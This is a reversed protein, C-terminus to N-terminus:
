VEEIIPNIVKIQSIGLDMINDVVENPLSKGKLIINQARLVIQVYEACQIGDNDLKNYGFVALIGEWKSYHYGVLSLAVAEAEPTLADKMPLWYFNGLKRLPFIRVEPVVAELAFVRKIKNTEVVWAVAVHCFLSKTVYRVAQIEKDYLTETADHTFALIDGTKITERAEEYNM